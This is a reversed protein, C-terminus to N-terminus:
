HLNEGQHAGQDTPGYANSVRSVGDSRGQDPSLHEPIVVAPSFENPIYFGPEAPDLETVRFNQISKLFFQLISIKPLSLVETFSNWESQSLKWFHRSIRGQEAILM